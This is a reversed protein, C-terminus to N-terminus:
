VDSVTPSARRTISACRFTWYRPAATRISISPPKATRLSASQAGMPLSGARDTFSSQRREHPGHAFQATRVPSGGLDQDGSSLRCIRTRIAVEKAGRSAEVLLGSGHDKWGSQQ